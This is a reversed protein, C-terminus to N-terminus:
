RDNSGSFGASLMTFLFDTGRFERREDRKRTKEPGRPSGHQVIIVM